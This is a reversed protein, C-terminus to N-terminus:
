PPPGQERKLKVLCCVNRRDTRRFTVRDMIRGMLHVGLGGKRREAVYRQLDLQPMRRRDIADGSDLVEIKLAGGRYELRLEIREGRKGKYAHKIVNTTCEDVALAVKEATHEDFGAMEAVGKSVDRVLSLFETGSPIDLV